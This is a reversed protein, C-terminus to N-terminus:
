PASQCSKAQLPSAPVQPPRNSGRVPTAMVLQRTQREAGNDQRETTGNALRTGPATDHGKPWEVPAVFCYGLRPRTEIYRPNQALDGLVGRLKNVATNLSHDFAVYTDPWLKECLTKRRVVQGASEILAELIQFPKEELQIRMGHKRLERSEFSVEFAGFRVVSPLNKVNEMPEVRPSRGPRPGLDGASGKKQQTKSTRGSEGFAVVNIFVQEQGTKNGRDKLGVPKASANACGNPAAPEDLATSHPSSRPSRPSMLQKGSPIFSPPTRLTFRKKAATMTPNNKTLTAAASVKSSLLPLTTCPLYRPPVAAMRRKSTFPSTSVKLVVSMTANVKVPRAEPEAGM